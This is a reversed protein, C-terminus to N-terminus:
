PPTTQELARALRPRADALTKELVSRMTEVIVVVRDTQTTAEGELVESWLEEGAATRLRLSLRLRVRQEGARDIEELQLLRGDLYADYRRGSVIRELSEVGPTSELGTAIAEELMSELPAAWRHYAYFSIEPSGDGVRYALRDQDYPSEVAFHRVGLNWGGDATPSTTRPQRELELLYYHTQPLQSCAACLLVLPVLTAARTRTM